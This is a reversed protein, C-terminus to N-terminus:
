DNNYYDAELNPFLKKKRGDKKRFILNLEMLKKIHYDITKRNIELRNTIIKNYIGPKEEIMELVRLTLESKQLKLDINSIPNKGYYPFYALYNGVRKKGVVKYTELVDLHWVLNGPALGTKRLLQNFHIGPNDLILEIIKDRNKNELVEEMTLRHTGKDVPTLRKKLKDFYESKSLVISLTIMIAFLIGMFITIPIWEKAPKSIGQIEFITLLYQKDSEINSLDAVLYEEISKKDSGQNSNKLHSFVSNDSNESIRNTPLLNWTDQGESFVGVTYNKEPNLGFEENIQFKFQIIKVTTNTFIQYITEYTFNLKKTKDKSYEPIKPMNPYGYHTTNERASLNLNLPHDNNVNMFIQRDEVKPGYKISFSVSINAYIGFRTNNPFNYEKRENPEVKDKKGKGPIEEPPGYPPVPPNERGYAIPIFIGILLLFLLLRSFHTRKIM